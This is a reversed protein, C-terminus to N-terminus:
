IILIIVEYKESGFVPANDNADEVVIELETNASLKPDGNDTVTVVLNYKSRTERDLSSNLSIVGTKPHIWFNQL